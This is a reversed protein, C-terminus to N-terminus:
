IYVQNLLDFVGTSNSQLVKVQKVNSFNYSVSSVSVSWNSKTLDLVPGEAIFRGESSYGMDYGGLYLSANNRDTLNLSFM